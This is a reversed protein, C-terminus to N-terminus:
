LSVVRWTGLRNASGNSKYGARNGEDFSLDGSQRIDVIIGSQRFLGDQLLEAGSEARVRGQLQARPLLYHSVEVALYM